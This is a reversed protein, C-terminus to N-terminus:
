IISYYENSKKIIRRGKENDKRIDSFFNTKAKVLASLLEILNVCTANEQFKELIKNGEDVAKNNNAYCIYRFGNRINNRSKASLTHVIACRGNYLDEGTINQSLEKIIYKECFNIFDDKVNRNIIEQELSDLWSLADITAYMLILVSERYEKDKCIKISKIIEDYRKEIEDITM